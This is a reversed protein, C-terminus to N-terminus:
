LRVEASGPLAHWAVEPEIPEPLGSHGVDFVVVQDRGQRKAQYLAADARELTQGLSASATHTAVGASFTVRLEPQSAFVPQQRLTAQLRQLPALAQAESANPFLMLFEEGGWRAVVDSDRLVSQAAQAFSALVEDGGRHGLTDNIRKFHDLDILAVTFREGYREQRGVCTDLLEQMHRRNYLGTLSDRTALQQVRELAATLEVRQKFLRERWVALHNAAYVLVPVTGALLEFRVLERDGPYYVPDVQSLVLMCLLLLFMAGGGIVLTEKPTHTYMGFVIVLPLLAFVMGRDEPRIAIYALSIALLALINQPIMMAPDARRRSWGSRILWIFVLNAPIAVVLLAPLLWPRVIGLSEVHRAALSCAVYVLLCLGVSLCRWRTPADAGLCWHLLPRIAEMFTPPERM